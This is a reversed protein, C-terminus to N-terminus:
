PEGAEFQDRPVSLTLRYRHAPEFQIPPRDLMVSMWYVHM